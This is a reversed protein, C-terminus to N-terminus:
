TDVTITKVTGDGFKVKLDGDSSDVYLKAYGSLTAPASVGDVLMMAKDDSFGGTM